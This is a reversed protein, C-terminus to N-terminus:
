PWQQKIYDHHKREVPIFYAIDNGPFVHDGYYVVGLRFLLYGADIGGCNGRGANWRVATGHFAYQSNQFRDAPDALFSSSIFDVM